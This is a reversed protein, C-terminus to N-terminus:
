RLARLLVSNRHYDLFARQGESFIGVNVPQKTEIGMRRLSDTHAVPSIILRGADEFSIFGRDFLHDISPTLLLGNEGNLREENSSDRWPKCHSARLHEPRDVRTVRCSREIRMVREKFLGQGRRAVILSQRDTETLADTNEITQEIHHEWVEMDATETRPQVFPLAATAQTLDSAQRGILGILAGALNPLVETLYVGQNGNGSAQLPSYRDPLSHRLIGMHDKPRLKNEMEIFNVDIKWGVDEWNMGVGGFELPKPSERCYSAGVGIAFIHTDFFSFVIDGPSVERM